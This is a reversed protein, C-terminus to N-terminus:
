RGIQYRCGGIPGWEPSWKLGPIVSGMINNMAPALVKQCLNQGSVGLRDCSQAIPCEKVRYRIKKPTDEVVELKMGLSEGFSRALVFGAKADELPLEQSHRMANFQEIGVERVWRRLLHFAKEEWLEEIMVKALWIIVYVINQERENIM